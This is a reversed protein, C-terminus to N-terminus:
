QQIMDTIASSEFEAYLIDWEEPQNTPPFVKNILLNDAVSEPILMEIKLFERVLAM